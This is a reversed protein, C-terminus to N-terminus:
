PVAEARGRTRLSGQPTRPEPGAQSLRQRLSQLLARRQPPHAPPAPEPPPQTTAKGAQQLSHQIQQALAPDPYAPELEPELDPGVELPSPPSKPDPDAAWAGPRPAPVSPPSEPPGQGPATRCPRSCVRCATGPENRVGPHDPCTRPALGRPDLDFEPEDTVTGAPWQPAPWLPQHVGQGLRGALFQQARKLSSLRSMLGPFPRRLRDAGGLLASIQENPLGAAALDHVAGRLAQRDTRPNTLLANPIRAILELPEAGTSSTGRVCAGAGTTSLNNPFLDTPGQSGEHRECHAATVQEPVDSQHTGNQPPPTPEPARPRPVVPGASPGPRQAKGAPTLPPRTNEDLSEEGLDRRVQNIQALALPSYERAPICLELVAPLNDARRRGSALDEAFFIRTALPALKRVIGAQLLESLGRKISSPSLFNSTRQAMTEQLLYCWRGDADVAQAIALAVFYAKHSPFLGTRLQDCVWLAPAFGIGDMVGRPRQRAIFSGVSIGTESVPRPLSLTSEM